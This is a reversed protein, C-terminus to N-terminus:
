GAPCLTMRIFEVGRKYFPTGETIFGQKKYFALASIRANLFILKAGRAQMKEIVQAFLYRGFGKGQFAQRTAFKRIQCTADDSMFVSLCSVLEGNHLIGFHLASDDEELRCEDRSLGPWLVEHRIDLCQETTVTTFQM